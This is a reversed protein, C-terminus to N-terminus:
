VRGRLVRLDLSRMVIVPLVARIEDFSMTSSVYRFVQSRLEGLNMDASPLLFQNQKSNIRHHTAQFLDLRSVGPFQSPILFCVIRMLANFDLFSSSWLQTLSWLVGSLEYLRSVRM